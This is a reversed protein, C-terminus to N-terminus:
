HTRHFRFRARRGGALSEVKATFGHERLLSNYRPAKALLGQVDHTGCSNPAGV